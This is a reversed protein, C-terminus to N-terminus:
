AMTSTWTALVMSAARSRRTSVTSSPPPTTALVLNRSRISFAPASAPSRTRNGDMSRHVSLPAIIATAPAQRISRPSRVDRPTPASGDSSSPHGRDQERPSGPEDAGVQAIAEERLAVAHDRDVIERGPPDGVEGLRAAVAVLEREEVHVDAGLPEQRQELPVMGLDHHVESRLGR